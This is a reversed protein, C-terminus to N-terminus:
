LDIKAAPWRNINLIRTSAWKQPSHNLHRNSKLAKEISKHDAAQISGLSWHSIQATNWVM